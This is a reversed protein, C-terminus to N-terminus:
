CKEPHLVKRRSVAAAYTGMRRIAAASVNNRRAFKRRNPMTRLCTDGAGDRILYAASKGDQFKAESCKPVYRNKSEDFVWPIIILERSGKLNLRDQLRKPLQSWGALDAPRIAWEIPAPSGDYICKNGNSEIYTKDDCRGESHVERPIKAVADPNFKTYGTLTNRVGQQADAWWDTLVNGSRGRGRGGSRGSNRGSSKEGRIYKRALWILFIILAIYLIIEIARANLLAIFVKIFSYVFSSIKEWLWKIANGVWPLIPKLLTKGIPKILEDWIWKFFDKTKGFVKEWFYKTSDVNKTTVDVVAGIEAPTSM